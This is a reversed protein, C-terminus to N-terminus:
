LPADVDAVFWGFEGKVILWPVPWWLGEKAMVTFETSSNKDHDFNFGLRLLHDTINAVETPNKCRLHILYDDRELPAKTYRQNLEEPKISRDELIHIPVVVSYLEFQIM